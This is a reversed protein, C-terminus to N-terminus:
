PALRSNPRAPGSERSRQPPPTKRSNSSSCIPTSASATVSSSQRRPPKSPHATSSRWAPTKWTPGTSKVPSPPNRDTFYKTLAQLDYWYVIEDPFNADAPCDLEVGIPVLRSLRWHAHALTWGIRGAIRVLTLPTITRLDIEDGFEDHERLMASDYIDLGVQNLSQRIADDYSPVPAGLRRFPDLRGLFDGLPERLYRARRVISRPEADWETDGNGRVLLAFRLQDDVVLSSCRADVPAFDILPRRRSPLPDPRRAGRRTQGVPRHRVRRPLRGRLVGVLSARCDRLM